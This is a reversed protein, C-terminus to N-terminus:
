NSITLVSHLFVARESEINDWLMIEVDEREKESCWSEM